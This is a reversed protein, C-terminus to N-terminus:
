WLNESYLAHEDGGCRRIIQGAASAIAHAQERTVFRGTNTLFGQEIHQVSGDMVKHLAHMVNHHRAPAPLSYILGSTECLAASVIRETM